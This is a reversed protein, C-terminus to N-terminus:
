RESEEKPPPWLGTGNCASCPFVDEYPVFRIVRRSGLCFPCRGAKVAESPRM